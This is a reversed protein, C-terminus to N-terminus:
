IVNNTVLKTIGQDLLIKQIQVVVEKCQRHHM